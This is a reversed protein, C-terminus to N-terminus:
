EMGTHFGRLTSSIGGLLTAGLSPTPAENAVMARAIRYIDEYLATWVIAAAAEDGDHV